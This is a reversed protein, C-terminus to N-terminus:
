YSELTGGTHTHIYVYYLSVVDIDRYSEKLTGVYPKENGKGKCHLVAPDRYIFVLKHKNNYHIADKNKQIGIFYTKNIRQKALIFLFFWGDRPTYWYIFIKWILLHHFYHFFILRWFSVCVCACEQYIYPSTLPFIFRVSFVYLSFNSFFFQLLQPPPPPTYFTSFGFILQYSPDTKKKSLGFFLSSFLM